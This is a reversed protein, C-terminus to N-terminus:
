PQAGRVKTGHVRAARMGRGGNERRHQGFVANPVRDDAGARAVRREHKGQVVLRFDRNVYAEVFTRRRVVGEAKRQGRPGRHRGYAGRSRSREIVAGSQGLRKVGANGQQADGRVARRVHNSSPVALRDGLRAHVRRVGHVVVREVLRSHVQHLQRSTRAARHAEGEMSTGALTGTGNVEVDRELFGQVVEGRGWGKRRRGLSVQFVLCVGGWVRKGDGLLKPLREVSTTDHNQRPRPGPRCSARGRGVEMDVHRAEGLSSASDLPRADQETCFTDQLVSGPWGGKLGLGDDGEPERGHRFGQAVGQVANGMPVDAFVEVSFPRSPVDPAGQLARGRRFDERPRAGRHLTVPPVLGFIVEELRSRSAFLFPAIQHSPLGHGLRPSRPAFFFPGVGEVHGVASRSPVGLPEVESFRATRVGSKMGIPAHCSDVSAHGSRQAPMRPSATQALGWGRPEDGSVHRKVVIGVGKQRLGGQLAVSQLHHHDVVAASANESPKWARLMALHKMPMKFRGGGPSHGRHGLAGIRLVEAGSRRCFQFSGKFVGPVFLTQDHHFNHSGVHVARICDLGVKFRASILEM